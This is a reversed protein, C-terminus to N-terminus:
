IIMWSGGGIAFALGLVTLIGAGAKDGGTVPGMDVTITDTSSDGGTGQAANPDSQSTGGKQLTVPPDVNKILNSQIVSMASMQEGVGFYGDFTTQYWRRGCFNGGNGVCTIAAADASAKLIPAITSNTFPALQMTVSMWRSLYAKFSPQDYNCTQPLPIECAVEAMIQGNVPPRTGQANVGATKVFFIDAAALLKTIRDGWTQNQNTYDYMYAAGMLMTGINYTWYVKTATTCNNTMYTGDWVTYNEMIPSNYMWNWSKDAWDAYTQNGTYRALRAALQFFGGNSIANKYDYGANFPYIQWRLGGNCTSTEWRPYQTNFVAQALAVWSPYKSPPNPFKLEAADMASFAWFVQDDNGLDKSRNRPMYNEDDGIQFLLAQQIEDNYDDNGTLYWHHILQGFMAGTEWWYYPSPLLGPVM